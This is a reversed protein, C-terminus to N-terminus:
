VWEELRKALKPFCEPDSLPVLFSVGKSFDQLRVNDDELSVSIGWAGFLVEVEFRSLLRQGGPGPTAEGCVFGQELLWGRVAELLFFSETFKDEASM